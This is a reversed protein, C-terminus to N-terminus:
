IQGIFSDPKFSRTVAPEAHRAYIVRRPSSVRLLYDLFFDMLVFNLTTAKATEIAITPAVM